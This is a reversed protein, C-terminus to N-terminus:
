IKFNKFGEYKLENELIAKLEDKNFVGEFEENLERKIQNKRKKFGEKEYQQYERIDEINWFKDAYQRLFEKLHRLTTQSYDWYESFSIKNTQKNVSAINTDYSYLVYEDGYDVVYAKKYFSKAGDWRPELEWKEYYSM